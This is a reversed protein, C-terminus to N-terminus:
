NEGGDGNGKGSWLPRGDEGRIRVTEGTAIKSLTGVEFEDGEYFGELSVSDGTQFVFGLDQIFQLARNELSIIDGEATTIQLLDPNVITVTGTRTVWGEVLADAIGDGTPIGEGAEITVPSIDEAVDDSDEDFSVLNPDGPAEKDNPNSTEFVDAGGTQAITRNVGGFIFAGFLGAFVIGVLLKKIM